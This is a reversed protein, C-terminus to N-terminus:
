VTLEGPDGAQRSWIRSKEVESARQLLYLHLGMLEKERCFGSECLISQSPGKGRKGGQAERQPPPLLKNLKQSGRNCLSGTSKFHASSKNDSLEPLDSPEWM